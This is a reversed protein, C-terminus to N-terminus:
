KWKRIYTVQQDTQKKKMRIDKLNETL